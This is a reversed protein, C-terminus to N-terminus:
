GTFETAEFSMWKKLSDVNIPVNPTLIRSGWLVRTKHTIEYDPQYRTLITFTKVGRTQGSEFSVDAGNSVIRAWLTKDTAWGSATKGGMGDSATTASQFSIKHRLESAQM